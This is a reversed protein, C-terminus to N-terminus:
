LLFRPLNEIKVEFYYIKRSFCRNDALHHLAIGKKGRIIEFDVDGSATLGDESFVVDRHRPKEDEQDWQFRKFYPLYILQGTLGYQKLESLSEVWM